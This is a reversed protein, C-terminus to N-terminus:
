EEAAEGKVVIAHCDPCERAEIEEMPDEAECEECAHEEVVRSFPSNCSPCNRWAGVFTGQSCADRSCERVKAEPEEDTTHDCSGCKWAPAADVMALRAHPCPPPEAAKKAKTANAAEQTWRARDAEDDAETRMLPSPEGILAALEDALFYIGFSSGRSFKGTTRDKENQIGGWRERVKEVARALADNHAVMKDLPIRSSM